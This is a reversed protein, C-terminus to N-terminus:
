LASLSEYVRVFASYRAGDATHFDFLTLVQGPGLRRHDGAHVQLRKFLPSDEFRGTFSAREPNLDFKIASEGHSPRRPFTGGAHSSNALYKRDKFIQVSVKTGCSTFDKVVMTIRGNSDATIDGITVDSFDGTFLKPFGFYVILMLAGVVIAAKLLKRARAARGSDAVTPASM